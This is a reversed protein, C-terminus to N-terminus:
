QPSAKVCAGAVGNCALEFTTLGYSGLFEDDVVINYQHGGPAGAPDLGHVGDDPRNVEYVQVGTDVTRLTSGLFHYGVILSPVGAAVVFDLRAPGGTDTLPGHAGAVEALELALYEAIAGGWSHSVLTVQRPGGVFSPHAAIWAQTRRYLDAADRAVNDRTYNLLNEPVSGTGCANLGGLGVFPVRLGDFSRYVFRDATTGAGWLALTVAGSEIEGDSFGARQATAIAQELVIPDFGRDRADAIPPSSAVAREIADGLTQKSGTGPVAVILDGVRVHRQFVEDAPGEVEAPPDGLDVPDAPGAVACAALLVCTLAAPRSM